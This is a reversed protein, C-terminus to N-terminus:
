TEGALATSNRRSARSLRRAKDKFEYRPSTAFSMRHGPPATRTRMRLCPGTPFAMYRTSTRLPRQRASLTRDFGLAVGGCDPLGSPAGRAAARGAGAGAAQAAGGSPTTAARFARGSSSRAAALEHFGNALEMGEGYLGFRQAARPERPDLRALAAQSAPYGHIFTLASPSRACAQHGRGHAAELYEDRRRPRLGRHVRSAAAARALEPGGRHVSGLGARAPLSAPLEVREASPRRERGRGPAHAGAGRGRGHAGGALIGAPVVRDLTFEPQAPPRDRLRARVHCVQYIDGSGAALLRKM